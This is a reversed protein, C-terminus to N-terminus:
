EIVEHEEISYLYKSIGYEEIALDAYEKKLFVKKVICAYESYNSEKSVIYVKM